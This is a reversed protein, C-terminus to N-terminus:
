QIFIIRQYTVLPGHDCSREKSICSKIKGPILLAKPTKIQKAEKISVALDEWVKQYYPPVSKKHTLSIIFNMVGKPQMSKGEQLCREWIGGDELELRSQCSEMDAACIHVQFERWRQETNFRRSGPNWIKRKSPKNGKGASTFQKPFQVDPFSYHTIHLARWQLLQTTELGHSTVRHSNRESARPHSRGTEEELDSVGKPRFGSPSRRARCPEAPRSTEPERERDLPAEARTAGPAAKPLHHAPAAVVEVLEPQLGGQSGLVSRGSPLPERSGLVQPFLPFPLVRRWGRSGLERRPPPKNGGPGQTFASRPDGGAGGWGSLEAGLGRSKRRLCRSLLVGVEVGPPTPVSVRWPSPHSLEKRRRPPHLDRNRSGPCCLSRGTPHARLRPRLPARSRPPPPPPVM